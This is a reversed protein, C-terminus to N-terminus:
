WFIKPFNTATKFRAFICHTKQCRLHTKHVDLHSILLIIVSFVGHTYLARVACFAKIDCPPLVILCFIHVWTKTALTHDAPRPQAPSPQHKGFYKPFTPSLRSDKSFVTHKKPM